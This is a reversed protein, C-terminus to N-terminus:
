DCPRLNVIHRYFQVQIHETVNTNQELFGQFHNM